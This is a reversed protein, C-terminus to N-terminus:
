RALNKELTKTQLWGVKREEFQMNYAYITDFLM